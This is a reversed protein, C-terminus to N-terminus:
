VCLTELLRIICSKSTYYPKYDFDKKAKEVSINWRDDENMDNGTHFIEADFRKAILEALEKMSIPSGSAINYVGNINENDIINKISNAIDESAIFDQTRSGSGFVTIKKEARASNFWKKVVNDHLLDFNFTIPSPIRLSVPRYNKAKKFLCMEAWYKSIAYTSVPAIDHTETIIDPMPKRLFNVTSLFIVARKKSTNNCWNFLKESFEMNIKRYTEFEDEDSRLRVAGGCHIVVDCDPFLHFDAFNKMDGSICEVNEEEVKRRSFLYIKYGSSLLKKKIDTGVLGTGGTLLINKM